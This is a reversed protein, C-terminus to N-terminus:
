NQINIHIYTNAPFVIGYFTDKLVQTNENEIVKWLRLQDEPKLVWDKLFLKGRDKLSKFAIIEFRPSEFCNCPTSLYIFNNIM